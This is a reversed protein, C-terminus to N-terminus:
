FLLLFAEILNRVVFVAGIYPPALLLDLCKSSASFYVCKKYNGSMLNASLKNDYGMGKVISPLFSNNRNYIFLHIILNFLIVKYWANNCKSQYVPIQFVEM